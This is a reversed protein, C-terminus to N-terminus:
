RGHGAVVKGGLDPKYIFVENMYAGSDPAVDRLLQTLSDVLNFVEPEQSEAETANWPVDAAFVIRFRNTERGCLREGLRFYALLAKWIIAYLPVPLGATDRDCTDRTCTRTTFKQVGGIGCGTSFERSYRLATNVPRWLTGSINTTSSLYHAEFYPM